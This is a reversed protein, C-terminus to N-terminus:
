KWRTVEEFGITYNGTPKLHMHNLGYAFAASAITSVHIHTQESMRRMTLVLEVAVRVQQTGRGIKKTKRAEM